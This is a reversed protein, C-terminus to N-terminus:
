QDSVAFLRLAAPTVGTAPATIGPVASRFATPSLTEGVEWEYGDSGPHQAILRYGGGSTAGASLVHWRGAALEARFFTIAEQEPTPLELAVTADFLGLGRQVGSGPVYRTGAPVVLAALVDAPPEGATVVAGLVDGAPEPVLGGTGPVATAASPRPPPSSPSGSLLDALFGTLFVAFVVAFVVLAPKASPGPPRTPVHAAASDGDGGGHGNAQPGGGTMPLPVDSARHPPSAM